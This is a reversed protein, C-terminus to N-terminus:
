QSGSRAVKRKIGQLKELNGAVSVYRHSKEENGLTASGAALRFCSKKERGERTKEKEQLM